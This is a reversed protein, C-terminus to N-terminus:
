FSALLDVYWYRGWDRHADQSFGFSSDYIPARRDAINNIGLRFRMDTEAVAFRYDIKGNVTSMADVDFLDGNALVQHFGGIRFATLGASWEEYRWNISASQRHTQNGNIGLLDGLGAIPYVITPDNAQAAQIATSLTGGASQEFEDYYSGNWKFDWEGFNTEMSYYLGIDYGSLSRTDLNTYTDTVAIVDGVPCLGAAMYANVLDTDTPDHAERIVDPSGTVSACNSTGAELRLVLDYLIHNEEGFLGITGDKEISWYDFTFTLNDMVSWVVGISTNTSEEPTLSTSGTAQRQVGYDCDEDLGGNDEAYFCVWDDRTNSRAVFRENITILNPARFAESWSGRFLVQDIPRWGFAVKGVTTDGIDDFDEYRMAVQVDLTEHLPLALEAFISNTKRSGAGDPTPSSNVVDSTLPYTDGEFDGEFDPVGDGTTDRMFRITGDLRPDRDDAYTERRFEYGALFGVPGAPLEFLEANSFKVDWMGLTSKGYRYVDVLAQEINSDIGGSFPNYANPTPDFLALTILTNSLRNSTVDDRTAESYVYASEWDWNGLEGRVGVLGRYSEGAVNAIRPAEVFRHNDIRLEYGEAPLDPGVISDPLRFPSGVAGLPNYYNSAGVRLTVAGLDTSPHLSRNT